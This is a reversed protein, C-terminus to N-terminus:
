AEEMVEELRAKLTLASWQGSVQPEGLYGYNLLSGARAFLLRSAKGLPGMGMVSLPQSGAAQSGQCEM